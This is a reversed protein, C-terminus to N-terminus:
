NRTTTPSFDGNGTEQADKYEFDALDKKHGM